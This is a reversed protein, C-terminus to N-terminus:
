GLAELSARIKSAQDELEALEAKAKDVVAAPAKDVFGKSQLRGSLKEIEKALKESQKQLRQKEKEVDILESLPLYAEVGDQIVLQVSDAAAAAKAEDSNTAVVAVQEPDLKALVILSKVEAEIAEKLEGSAVITAGIKKGQEVNYEARANRISRTLAQFCEFTAIAEDDKVLPTDDMQPWDALMLANAAKEESKPARPLHHWLQETVYPMYPHLLRMSTDLIYVLVRRATKADDGGGGFGEYLRTKSIEIYWDAYQDWLFEYIKSGAAGLQYKEIDNTVSEVLEHCKSIIYREPLALTDFEEKSLPGTVGLSALEAEDAGKLANETVFKCCNWLKNAFSKNAAIKDMNLPIDQGPTVGTVLSYRLSDAGYEAVTDLPDVVNGKTKSMKSGDAARVLGHLYIVQFPSVGTLEIGLMVMRAVWFFLIDYGTELCTGPYFRELDTNEGTKGEDQPWGVTAFPWLGSSFWTDLVDDEQRLPVDAPLGREIAKQRAEDENRAVIFNEESNDVYWVPIRHGWWLQRSICWDRIDTLWGDWVKEFRRPVIEIEGQKVAELAKKGMGETKVFWQQSVLPEIVEGGRQSRPVRQMHKEAKITLGEEEMDKWLKDRAAFRDLGAYDTGCTSTMTADKNMITLIPLDHTKGLEYDNPDHGPTIKLAGTGFSMDVYDDAIVPITRYNKAPSDKEFASKGSLPVIVRKGVLHRYREDDPNVCVATDGFITEPRTTAVPLYDEEAGDVLYKFYYLKGEEESYEVELDSVATMLGPSWNVMYTGRYVLGKEYLRCFAETVGVSLAPDMTFRERTWDASAGLSRLQSTIAGGQEEKYEWVRKLFEERGVLRESETEDTGERAAAIEADTGRRKGEAALAKEVQLQTAIGAHDTGPTWLVPRGRMRHFRALVDQLAVFIAHGMHLRGTVNPPPMPLVYPQKNSSSSSSSLFARKADPDFCGAAEWWSYISSEFSSPDYSTNALGTQRNQLDYQSDRYNPPLRQYIAGNHVISENGSSSSTSTESSTTSSSSLATPRIRFSSAVARRGTVFAAVPSSSLSSSSAFSGVFSRSSSRRLASIGFTRRSLAVASASSSPSLMNNIHNGATVTVPTTATVAVAVTAALYAAAFSYRRKHKPQLNRQSQGM